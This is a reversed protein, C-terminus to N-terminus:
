HPQSIAPTSDKTRELLSWKGMWGGGGGGGGDKKNEEEM